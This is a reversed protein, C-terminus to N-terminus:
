PPKKCKRQTNLGLFSIITSCLSFALHLRRLLISCISPTGALVAAGDMANQIPNHIKNKIFKKFLFFLFLKDALIFHECDYPIELPFHSVGHRKAGGVFHHIWSPIRGRPDQIVCWKTYLKTSDKSNKFSFSFFELYM